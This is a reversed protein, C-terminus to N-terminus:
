SIQLLNYTQKCCFSTKFNKLKEFCEVSFNRYDGNPDNKTQNDSIENNKVQWLCGTVTKNGFTRVTSLTM